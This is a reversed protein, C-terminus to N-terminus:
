TKPGKKATTTSSTARTISGAKKGEAYPLPRVGCYTFRVDRRTLRAAPLVRNTEAILYDIEEDSAKIHDLPGDYKEDTTGILYQGLWPVIFYPRGDSKAEVYLASEPAGPFPDVIIHSGKTGGIKREKSVTRDSLGCVKDVWPGSTNVVV